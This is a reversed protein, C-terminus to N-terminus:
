SLNTTNKKQPTKVFDTMIATDYLNLMKRAIHVGEGDFSGGWRVEEWHFVPVPELLPLVGSTYTLMM